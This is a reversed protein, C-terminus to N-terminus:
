ICSHNVYKLLRTYYYMTADHLYHDIQVKCGKFMLIQFDDSKLNKIIDNFDDFLYVKNDMTLKWMSRGLYPSDSNNMM